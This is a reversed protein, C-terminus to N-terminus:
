DEEHTGDDLRLCTELVDHATALDPFQGDEYDRCPNDAAPIPTGVVTWRDSEATGYRPLIQWTRHKGKTIRTRRLTQETGTMVLSHPFMPALNVTSM